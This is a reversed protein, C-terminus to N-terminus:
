AGGRSASNYVMVPRYFDSDGPRRQRGGTIGPGMGHGYTCKACAHLHTRLITRFPFGARRSYYGFQGMGHLTRQDNVNKQSKITDSNKRLRTYRNKLSIWDWCPSTNM